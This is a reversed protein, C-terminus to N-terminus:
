VASYERGAHISAAIIGVIKKSNSISGGEYNSHGNAGSTVNLENSLLKRM